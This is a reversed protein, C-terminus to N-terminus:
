HVARGCNTDPMDDSMEQAITLRVPVRSYTECNYSHFCTQCRTGSAGSAFIILKSYLWDDWSRLQLGKDSAAKIEIEYGSQRLSDLYSSYQSASEVDELLVLVKKADPTGASVNLACLSLLTLHLVWRPSM